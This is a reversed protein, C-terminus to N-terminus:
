RPGGGRRRLRRLRRAAPTIRDAPAVAGITQRQEETPEPWADVNANVEVMLAQDRLM